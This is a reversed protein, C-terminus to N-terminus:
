SSTFACLMSYLSFLTNSVRDIFSPIQDSGLLEPSIFISLINCFFRISGHSAAIQLWLTAIPASKSVTSMLSLTAANKSKYSSYLCTSFTFTKSIICFVAAPRLFFWVATPKFSSFNNCHNPIDAGNLM